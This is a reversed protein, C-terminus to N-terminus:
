VLINTPRRAGRGCAISSGADAPIVPHGSAREQAQDREVRHAPCDVGALASVDGPRSGCVSASEESLRARRGAAPTDPKKACPSAACSGNSSLGDNHMEEITANKEFAFDFRWRRPPAFAFAVETDLDPGRLARWVM